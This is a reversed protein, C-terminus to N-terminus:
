PHSREVPDRHQETFPTTLVRFQCGCACEYYMSSWTLPQTLEGCNWCEVPM